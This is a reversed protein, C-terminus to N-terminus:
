RSGALLHYGVRGAKGQRHLNWGAPLSLDALTAEAEVYVFGGPALWGGAALASLTPAVLAHGFPPDMFVVDFAATAPKAVYTGVVANITAGTECRVAALHADIADLAARERDVFTCESAGRSLAELGLAGSGAFLDLCRAGHIVPALWNFLTERVRDPSPRLDPLEPFRFRRSRWEGGIIRFQNQM